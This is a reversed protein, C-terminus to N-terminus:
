YLHKLNFISCTNPLLSLDLTVWPFLEERGSFSNKRDLGEILQIEDLIDGMSNSLSFLLEDELQKLKINFANNDAIIQSQAMGLDEREKQVVHGVAARNFFKIKM